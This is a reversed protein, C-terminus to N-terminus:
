MVPHKAELFPTKYVGLIVDRRYKSNRKWVALTTEVCGTTCIHYQINQIKKLVNVILFCIGGKKCIEVWSGKVLSTLFNSQTEQYEDLSCFSYDLDNYLCPDQRLSHEQIKQLISKNQTSLQSRRLNIGCIQYSHLFYINLVNSSKTM